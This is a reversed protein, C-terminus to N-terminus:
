RPRDVTSRFAEVVSPDVKVLHELFPLRREHRGMIIDIGAEAAALATNTTPRM